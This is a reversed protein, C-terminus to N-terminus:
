DFPNLWAGVRSMGRWARAAVGDGRRPAATHPLVAVAADVTNEPADSVLTWTRGEGSWVVRAPASQDKWVQGGDVLQSTAGPLVPVEGPQVFLSLTSLGDSYALQLVEGGEADHLRADFLELGGPLRHIVPWGAEELRSLASPDLEVGAPRVERPAEYSAVLRQRPQVPVVTVDVFASTRVVHGVDSFVDRRLVLGSAIDVWFRAALGASGAVGPRRAEVVQARHGACSSQGAVVLDYSSALLGLLTPDVVDATVTEVPVGGGDLVQVTRGRGVVHTVQVVSSMLDGARYRAIYQTGSWTRSRAAAAAAELLTRAPSISPMVVPEDHAPATAAGALPAGVILAGLSTLALLLRLRRM